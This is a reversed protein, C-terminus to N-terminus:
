LCVSYISSNYDIDYHWKMTLELDDEMISDMEKQTPLTITVVRWEWNVKTMKKKINPRISQLHKIAEDTWLRKSQKIWIFGTEWWKKCLPKKKSVEITSSNHKFNEFKTNKMKSVNMIYICETM